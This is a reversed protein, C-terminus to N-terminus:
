GAADPQPRTLQLRQDSLDLTLGLRGEMLRWVFFHADRQGARCFPEEAWIARATEISATNLVTLGQGAAAGDAPTLPGSLLVLGKKELAVMFELHAGLLAGPDFGPRPQSLIAVVEFNLMAKAREIPTTM